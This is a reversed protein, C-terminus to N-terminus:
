QRDLQQTIASSAPEFLGIMHGDPSRIAAVRGTIPYKIPGDMRGGLMMAQQVAHDMDPVTFNLFTSYGATAAAENEAASIVISIGPGGTSSGADLEAWGGAERTEAVVRLGLVSQYFHVSTPVDRSLLMVHRLTSRAAQFAM